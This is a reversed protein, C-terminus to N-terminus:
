VQATSLPSFDLRLKCRPKLGAESFTLLATARGPDGGDGLAQAHSGRGFPQPELM